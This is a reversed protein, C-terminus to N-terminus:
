SGGHEAILRLGTLWPGTSFTQYVDSQSSAEERERERGGHRASYTTWSYSWLLHPENKLSVMHPWICYELNSYWASSNLHSRMAPHMTPKARVHDYSGSLFQVVVVFWWAKASSSICNGKKLIRHSRQFFANDPVARLTLLFELGCSSQESIKNKQWVFHLRHLKKEQKTIHTCVCVCVSVCVCVCVCDCM